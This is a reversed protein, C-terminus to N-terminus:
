VLLDREWVSERINTNSIIFPTQMDRESVQVCERQTRDAPIERQQEARKRGSSCAAVGVFGYWVTLVRIIALNEVVFCIFHPM